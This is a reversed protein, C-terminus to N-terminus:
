AKNQTKIKDLLSDSEVIVETGKFKIKFKGGALIVGTAIVGLVLIGTTIVKPTMSAQLPFSTNTISNNEM